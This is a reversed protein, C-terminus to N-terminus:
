RRRDDTGNGGVKSLKPIIIWACWGKAQQELHGDLVRFRVGEGYSHM